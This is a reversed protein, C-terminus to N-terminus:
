EKRVPVTGAVQSVFITVETGLTEFGLQIASKRGIDFVGRKDRIVSFSTTCCQSLGAILNVQM